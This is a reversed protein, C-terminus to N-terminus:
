LAAKLQLLRDLAEDAVKASDVVVVALIIRKGVAEAVILPILNYLKDVEEL